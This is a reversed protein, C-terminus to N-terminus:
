ASQSWWQPFLEQIWQLYSKSVPVVDGCDLRLQWKGKQLKELCVVRNPNVLWSRHVQLLTQNDFYLKIGTLRLLIYSPEAQGDLYLGSYGREAKIYRLKDKSQAIAHLEGLLQPQRCLQMLYQRCQGLQDTLQRYHGEHNHEPSVQLQLVCADLDDLLLQISQSDEGHQPDDSAALQRDGQYVSASKVGPQRSFWSVLEQHLAEVSRSQQWVPLIDRAPETNSEIALAQQQWSQLKQVMQQMPEPVDQHNHAGQEILSVLDPLSIPAEQKAPKFKRYAMLLSLLIALSIFGAILWQRSDIWISQWPADFQHIQLLVSGSGSADGPLTWLATGALRQQQAFNLKADIGQPSDYSLWIQQEPHYLWATKSKSDFGQQWSPDKTFRQIDQQSFVGSAGTQENDWSGLPVGKTPQGVGPSSVGQWSTGQSAIMLVLKDSQGGLANFRTIAAGVSLEGAPANLPVYHGTKDNWSGHFDISLLSIFDVYLQMEPLPWHEMMQDDASLTVSLGYEQGTEKTLALLAARTAKILTFYQERQQWNAPQGRHKMVPSRWDLEIGNFGHERVFNAASRAFTDPDRAANAFYKSYSWGGIAIFTKIHPYAKQMQRLQNYSGRKGGLPSDNEYIRDVDAYKDGLAVEGQETINAYAYIVHTLREAPIDTVHYSQSYTAWFPFYGARISEAFASHSGFLFLWVLSTVFLKM